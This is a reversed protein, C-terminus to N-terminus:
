QTEITKLIHELEFYYRSRGRAKRRASKTFSPINLCLAEIYKGFDGRIGLLDFLDCAAHIVIQERNKEGRATWVFGGQPKDAEPEFCLLFDQERGDEVFGGEVLGRYLHELQSRSYRTPIYIRGASGAAAPQSRSGDKWSAGAESVRAARGAEPPTDAGDEIPIAEVPAFWNPFDQRIPSSYDGPQLPAKLDLYLSHFNVVLSYLGCSIERCLDEFGDEQQLQAFQERFYDTQPGGYFDFCAAPIRLGQIEKYIYALITPTEEIRPPKERIEQFLPRAAEPFDRLIDRVEQLESWDSDYPSEFVNWWCDFVTINEGFLDRFAQIYQDMRSLAANNEM